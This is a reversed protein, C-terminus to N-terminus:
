DFKIVLERDGIYPRIFKEIFQKAEETAKAMLTKADLNLDLNEKAAKIAETADEKSESNFMAKKDDVFVIKDEKINPEFIEVKPLIITVSTDNVTINDSNFKEFDIGAKVEAHYIMYFAKQTIFPIKGESYHVVGTYSIEATSLEAASKLEGVILSVEIDPLDDQVTPVTPNLLENLYKIETNQNKIIAAMVIIGICLLIIVTAKIKEKLPIKNSLVPLRKEDSM